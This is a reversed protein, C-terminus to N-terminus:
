AEFVWRGGVMTREVPIHILSSPGERLPDRGLVVLDALKGAEISGKLREEFSAYAGNITGVRLAEEVTIRQRPGWLNGKADTRTVESQLAMMPEFPGPPYDSAQTPRIGADLFSRLAFMRDLREAGYEKMKEGHWYVYTSFPTPIAGLAKIRRVLDGTVMTCHELRFRPDRRPREHQVREYVRLAMDIAEDGNAHTGIQWDADHAKKATEYLAPEPTVLIGRDDPRGVYPERLRATRESISGDCVMKVAGVRVWEDGFGTRV